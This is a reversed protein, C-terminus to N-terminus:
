VWSNFIQAIQIDWGESGYLADHEIYQPGMAGSIVTKLMQPVSATGQPDLVVLNESAIPTQMMTVANEIVTLDASPGAGVYPILLAYAYLPDLLLYADDLVNSIILQSHLGTNLPVNELWAVFHLTPKAPSGSAADPPILEPHGLLALMTSLKCVHGCALAQSTLLQQLTAPIPPISNSGAPACTFGVISAYTLMAGADTLNAFPAGLISRIYSLPAGDGLQAYAQLFREPRSRIGDLAAASVQIKGTSAAPNPELPDAAVLNAPPSATSSGAAGNSLGGGCGTLAWCGTLAFTSTLFERRGPSQASATLYERSPQRAM